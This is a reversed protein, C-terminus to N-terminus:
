QHGTGARTDETADEHEADNEQLQLLAHQAKEYDVAAAQLDQSPLAFVLGLM